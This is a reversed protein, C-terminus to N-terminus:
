IESIVSLALQAAMSVASTPPLCAGSLKEQGPLREASIDRCLSDLAPTMVPSIAHFSGRPLSVRQLTGIARAHKREPSARELPAQVHVFVALALGNVTAGMLSSPVAASNLM